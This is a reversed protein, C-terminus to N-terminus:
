MANHSDNSRCGDNCDGGELTPLFSPLFFDQFELFRTNMRSELHRFHDLPLLNPPRDFFPQGSMTVRHAFHRALDIKLPACPQMELGSSVTQRTAEGVDQCPELATDDAPNEPRPGLLVKWLMHPAFLTSPPAPLHMVMMFALAVKPANQTVCRLRAVYANGTAHGALLAQAGRAPGPRGRRGTALPNDIIKASARLLHKHVNGM